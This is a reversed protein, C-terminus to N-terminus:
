RVFVESFKTYTLFKMFCLGEPSVVVRAAVCATLDMVMIVLARGSTGLWIFGTLVGCIKNQVWKHRPRELPRKGELQLM